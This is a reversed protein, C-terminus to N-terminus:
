IYQYPHLPYYGGAGVGLDGGPKGCMLFYRELNVTDEGMNTIEMFAVGSHAGLYCETILITDPDPLQSYSYGIGTIGFILVLLLKKM